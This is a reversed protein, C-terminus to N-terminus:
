KLIDPLDLDKCIKRCLGEKIDPHRPVTTLKGNLLNKYLSHKGGERVLVCQNKVLYKLLKNRKM